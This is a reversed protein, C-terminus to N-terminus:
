SGLPKRVNRVSFSARVKRDGCRRVCRGVAGYTCRIFSRAENLCDLMNDITLNRDAPSKREPM